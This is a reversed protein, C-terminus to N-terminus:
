RIQCIALGGAPGDLFGSAKFNPMRPAALIAYTRLVVM